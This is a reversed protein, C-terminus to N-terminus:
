AGYIPQMHPLVDCPDRAGQRCRILGCRWSSAVITDLALRRTIWLVFAWLDPMERVRGWGHTAARRLFRRDRGVGRGCM